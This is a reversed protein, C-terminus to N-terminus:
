GRSLLLNLGTAAFLASAVGDIKRRASRYVQSAKQTSFLLAFGSFIVAGTLSCGILVGYSVWAPAGEPLGLAIISAWVFVAKPNTLHLALGQYFYRSGSLQCAAVEEQTIASRLSKYALWLLYLGGGVKLMTLLWAFQTMLSTLGLAAVVGWLISGLIVGLAFQLGATRGVAASTQMIALTAPGPSATGVAYAALAVLINPLYEM